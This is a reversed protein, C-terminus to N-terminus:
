RRNQTWDCRHRLYPQTNSGGEPVANVGSGREATGPHRPAAAAPGSESLWRRKVSEPPLGAGKGQCLTPPNSAPTVPVSPPATAEVAESVATGSHRGGRGRGASGPVPCRVRQGPAAPYGGPGQGPGPQQSTGPPCSLGELHQSEGIHPRWNQV